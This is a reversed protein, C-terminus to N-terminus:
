QKEYEQLIENLKKPNDGYKITSDHVFDFFKKMTAEKEKIDKETKDLSDRLDDINVIAEDYPDQYFNLFSQAQRKEILKDISESLNVTEGNMNVIEGTLENFHLGVDPLLTNLRDVLYNIRGHNEAILDSNETITVLEEQFIRALTINQLSSEFNQKSSGLLKDWEAKQNKIEQTHDRTKKIAESEKKCLDDIMSIVSLLGMSAMAVGLVPLAVKFTKTALSALNMEKTLLKVKSATTSVVNMINTFSKKTNGAFAGEGSFILALNSLDGYFSGIKLISIETLGIIKLVTDGLNEMKIILDNIDKEQQKVTM